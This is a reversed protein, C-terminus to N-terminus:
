IYCYNINAMPFILLIVMNENIIIDKQLTDIIEIDIDASKNHSPVLEINQASTSAVNTNKEIESNVEPEGLNIYM